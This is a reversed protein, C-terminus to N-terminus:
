QDQLLAGALRRIFTSRDHDRMEQLVQICKTDGIDDLAEAVAERVSDDALGAFRLVCDREGFEGLARVLAYGYAGSIPETAVLRKVPSTGLHSLFQIAATKRGHVGSQLIMNLSSKIGGLPETGRRSLDILEALAQPRDYQGCQLFSVVAKSLEETPVQETMWVNETGKTQRVISRVRYDDDWTLDFSDTAANTRTKM